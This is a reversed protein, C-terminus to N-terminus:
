LNKSWNKENEEFSLHRKEEVEKCIIRKFKNKTGILGMRHLIKKDNNEERGGGM